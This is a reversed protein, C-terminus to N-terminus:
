LVSNLIIGCAVSVNLSDINGNYCPITIHNSTPVGELVRKSVGASESGFILIGNSIKGVEGVSKGHLSTVYCRDTYKRVIDHLNQTQINLYFFAGMSAQIVKPNFVEVCDPSLIIDTINYWLATRFITGMNGPDSIGDLALTLKESRLKVKQENNIKVIAIGFNNNKYTSLSTVVRENAIFVQLQPQSIMDVLINYSQETLILAELEYNSSLLDLISKYGQVIFLKQEERYKKQHLKKFLKYKAQSLSTM